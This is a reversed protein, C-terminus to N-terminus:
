LYGYGRLWNKTQKIMLIGGKRDTRMKALHGPNYKVVGNSLRGWHIRVVILYIRLKEIYCMSNNDLKLKTEKWKNLPTRFTLWESSDQLCHMNEQRKAM